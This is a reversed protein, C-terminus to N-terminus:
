IPRRLALGILALTLISVRLILITSVMPLVFRAVLTLLSSLRRLRKHRVFLIVLVSTVELTTSSPRGTSLHLSVLKSLATLRTNFVATGQALDLSTALITHTSKAATAPRITLLVIPVQV